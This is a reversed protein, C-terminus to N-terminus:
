CHHFIFTKKSLNNIHTGGVRALLIFERCFHKPYGQSLQLM